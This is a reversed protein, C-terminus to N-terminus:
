ESLSSSGEEYAIVLQEEGHEGRDIWRQGLTEVTTSTLREDVRQVVEETSCGHDEGDDGADVEKAGHWHDASEDRSEPDELVCAVCNGVRFM